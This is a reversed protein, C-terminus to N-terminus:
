NALKLWELSEEQENQTSEGGEEQNQRPIIIGCGRKKRPPNCDSRDNKQKAGKGTLFAARWPRAGFLRILIKRLYGRWGCVPGGHQDELRGIDKPNIKQSERDRRQAIEDRRRRLHTVSM